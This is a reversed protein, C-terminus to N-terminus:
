PNAPAAPKTVSAPSAGHDWPARTSVRRATTLREAKDGQPGGPRLHPQNPLAARGPVARSDGSGTVRVM